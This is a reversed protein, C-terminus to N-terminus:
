YEKGKFIRITLPCSLIFLLLSAALMVATGLLPAADMINFLVAAIGVACLLSIVLFVIIKDEGALYILPIFIAGLILSISTGLVFLSLMGAIQGFSVRHLMCSLATVIGAFLLGVIIWLLQNLYLSKVIDARKVPLTLKYKGWRSSFENGAAAAANVSFGVIGIIVFYMQLTQVPLVMVAIGMATMFVLFIRANLWSAWFNNRFLGSM